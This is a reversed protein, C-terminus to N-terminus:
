CIYRLRSSTMKTLPRRLLLVVVLAQDCSGLTIFSWILCSSWHVKYYWDHFMKACTESCFDRSVKDIQKTLSKKCMQTCHNCTFCKLGLRSAFDQKFLLKCGASRVFVSGSIDSRTEYSLPKSSSPGYVNEFVLRLHQESTRLGFYKTNLYLLSRLLVSPTQEGIQGSSWLHQEEVRGWRSGWCFVM